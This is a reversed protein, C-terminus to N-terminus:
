FFMHKLILSALTHTHEVKTSRTQTFNRKAKHQWGKHMERIWRESNM